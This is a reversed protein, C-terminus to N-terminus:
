DCLFEGMKGVAKRAMFLEKDKLWKQQNRQHYDQRPLHGWSWHLHNQTVEDDQVLRRYHKAMELLEEDAYFANYEGNVPGEGSYARLAWEKGIWPSGCIRRSNWEGNILEGQKDGTPQYVGEGNPFHKFYREAVQQANLNPDPTMDDGALVVVDAGVAFSAKALANWARWVGPYGGILLLAMTLDDRLQGPDCWLAIKYGQAAWKELVGPVHDRQATPICVWIQRDAM